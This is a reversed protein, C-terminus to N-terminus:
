PHRTAHLRASRRTTTRPTRTSRTAVSGAQSHAPFPASLEPEEPGSPVEDPHAPRGAPAPVFYERGFMEQLLFEPFMGPQLPFQSRYASLAEVKRMAQGSVDCSVVGQAARITGAAPPPNAPAGPLASALRAERGRGAFKAPPAPSLALCTLSTAAVVDASRHRHGFFEGVGLRGPQECRGGNVEPWVQAEGSLILFLEATAEGQEVVCSGPPYWRVQVHDRIHGLTSAAEALLLFAHAFAPTGAFGDPQSTLWAALQDMILLDGPPFCRYYLRPPRRVTGKVTWDPGPRPDAARQCAATTVASITVHDPHGYGGDPGFTIVVDPRFEGIVEAVEEVLAPFAADALTGDVHELCRVTTIGLRECALRLEAERVAAITRRTGVAGDRIQGAQGRTASVVMIEAGQEAYRAFTGGACFTEDDPHAFVGLLRCRGGPQVGDDLLGPGAPRPRDPRAGGPSHKRALGEAGPGGMVRDLTGILTAPDPNLYLEPVKGDVALGSIGRGPWITGPVARDAIGGGPRKLYTRHRHQAQPIM